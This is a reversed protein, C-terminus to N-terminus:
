SRPHSFPFEHVSGLIRVVRDSKELSEPGCAEELSVPVRFPTPRRAPPPVSTRCRWSGGATPTGPSRPGGFAPSARRRPPSRGVGTLRRPLPRAPSPRRDGPLNSCSVKSSPRKASLIERAAAKCPSPAATPQNAPPPLSVAFLIRPPDETYRAFSQDPGRERQSIGVAVRGAASRRQRLAPLGHGFQKAFLEVSVM